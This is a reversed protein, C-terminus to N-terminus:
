RRRGVTRMAGPRATGPGLSHVVGRDFVSVPTLAESNWDGCVTVPHGGSIGLLTWLTREDGTVPLARGEADVLLWGGETVTPTVDGLLVPWSRIWPDAGIVDAFADLATDIGGARLTTFPEAQGHCAGWQARLPAAGPYFHIDADVLSGLPPVANAFNPAGHTFDLLLAWRGRDRARLWVKRTFLRKEETTQVGLVMWRDRVAPEGRVKETSVPYGVHTRVSARLPEPLETLRRHAVVLLHLKAYERLLRAPWDARMAVTVSLRRLASAVGPAQADVMRAAVADFAAPSTDTSGLGGRIQDTLWLDLEDLGAAVRDARREAAKALAASPPTPPGSESASAARRGLWDSAFPPSDATDPVGGQSWSLLLGLAHKCPFKRSPCSCSFAPGDLDVVTRYPSKGSGRCLGWLATGTHGTESWSASLTRAAALSGADAAVSAVQGESWPSTM